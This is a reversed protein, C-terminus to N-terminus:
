SRGRATEGHKCSEGHGDVVRSTEHSLEPEGAGSRLRRGVHQESLIRSITSDQLCVGWRVKWRGRVFSPIKKPNDRLEESQAAAALAFAAIEEDRKVRASKRSRSVRIGRLRQAGKDKLAAKVEDSYEQTSMSIVVHPAQERIEEGLQQWKRLKQNLDEEM